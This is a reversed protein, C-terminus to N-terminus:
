REMGRDKYKFKEPSLGMAQRYCAETIAKQKKYEEIKNALLIKIQEKDGESRLTEINNWGALRKTNAQERKDIIELKLQNEFTNNIKQLGNPLEGQIAAMGFVSAGRGYKNFRKITNDLATLSKVHVAYISVNYGAGLALSIKDIGPEPRALQGEFVAYSTDGMEKQAVLFSTTKGAGPVGTLFMITMSETAKKDALRRFQESALVAASNHVVTNFYGRTERSSNYEPFVEKFLDACVYKGGFSNPLKIYKGIFYDPNATVSKVIKEQVKM